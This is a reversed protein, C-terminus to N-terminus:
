VAVDPGDNDAPGRGDAPTEGDPDEGKAPQDGGTTEDASESTKDDPDKDDIPPDLRPAIQILVRIQALRVRGAETIAYV